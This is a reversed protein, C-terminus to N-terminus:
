YYGLWAFAASFVVKSASAGGGLDRYRTEYPPRGWLDNFKREEKPDPVLRTECIGDCEFFSILCGEHQGVILDQIDISWQSTRKRTVEDWIEVKIQRRELNADRLFEGNSDKRLYINPFTVEQGFWLM